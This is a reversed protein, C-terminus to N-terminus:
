TLSKKSDRLHYNLLIIKQSMSSVNRSKLLTAVEQIMLKKRNKHSTTKRVSVAFFMLRITLCRMTSNRLSSKNM